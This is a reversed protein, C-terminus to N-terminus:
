LVIVKLTTLQKNDKLVEIFYVGKKWDSVDWSSEMGELRRTNVIRGLTNRVQFVLKSDFEDNLVQVRILRDSASPSLLFDEKKEITREFSSYNSAISEKQRKSPTVQQCQDSLRLFDLYHVNNLVFDEEQNVICNWLNAKSTMNSTLWNSADNLIIAAYDYHGATRFLQAKDMLLQSIQQAEHPKSLDLNVIKANIVGTVLDLTADTRAGVIGPNRSLEDEDYAYAVAELTKQYVFDAIISEERSMVSPLHGLIETTMGIAKTNDGLQDRFTIGSVARTAAHYLNENPFRPSNIKKIGSVIGPNFNLEGIHGLHPRSECSPITPNDQYNIPRVTLTPGSAVTATTAYHIINSFSNSLINNELNLSYHQPISHGGSGAGPVYQFDISLNTPNVFDGYIDKNNNMFTNYGNSISLNSAQYCAIAQDCNRIINKGESNLILDAASLIIGEYTMNNIESCEVNLKADAVSIGTEGNLITSKKVSLEASTQGDFSISLTNNDFDGNLVSSAGEMATASIATKCDNFDCYVASFREGQVKLGTSCDDFECFLLKLPQELLSVQLAAEGLGQGGRVFKTHRITHDQGWLVVSKYREWLSSCEFRDYRWDIPTSISINRNPAIQVKGYWIKFENSSNGGVSFNRDAFLVLDNEGSGQLDIKANNGLVISQPYSSDWDKDFYLNGSGSFTFTANNTIELAEKGHFEIVSNDDELIITVNPEIVLKAGEDIILKSGKRVRITSGSRALVTSYERITLIGTRTNGDGIEIRGGSQIEMVQGEFDCGISTEVNFHSSPIAYENAPNNSFGIRDDCNVCVVGGDLVPFPYIYDRTVTTLGTGFNLQQNLFPSITTPYDLNTPFIATALVSSHEASFDIHRQNYYASSPTYNSFTSIADFPSEGTGSSTINTTGFSYEPNNAQNLSLSSVTPIFCFRDSMITPVDIEFGKDIFMANLDTASFGEPMLFLGGPAMDYPYHKRAKVFRKYLNVTITGFVWVKKHAFIRAHYITKYSPTYEISKGWIDVNGDVSGIWTDTDQEKDLKLLFLYDGPNAGQARDGNSNGNSIATNVCNQPFGIMTLYNMLNSHEATFAVDHQTTNAHGPKAQRRLLQKAAPSTSMATLKMVDIGLDSNMAIEALGFDALDIGDLGLFAGIVNYTFIFNELDWEFLGDIGLISNDIVDGGLDKILYQVALPVTAGKHPADYSIYDSTEHDIGAMEMERLAMRALVGGMSFGMVVNDHESLNEAKLQNVQEIVMKTLAANIYMDGSGQEFDIFVIDMQNNQLPIDLNAGQLEGMIYEFDFENSFDFGNVLILPRVLKDHGCGYEIYATASVGQYTVEFSEDPVNNYGEIANVFNGAVGSNYGLASPTEVLFSSSTLYSIHNYTLKYTLKKVGYEAYSVQYSQDLSIPKFGTGDNFDVEITLDNPNMNTMLDDADLRFSVVRNDSFVHATSAIFTKSKKFPSFPRNALDSYQMNSFKLTKALQKPDELLKNYEIFTIGLHQDSYNKNRAHDKFLKQAFKNFAQGDDMKMEQLVKEAAFYSLPTHVPTSLTTQGNDIEFYEDLSRFGLYYNALYGSPAHSLDVNKFLRDLFVKRNAYDITDNQGMLTLSMFLLFLLNVKKM